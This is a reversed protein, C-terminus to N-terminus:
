SCQSLRVPDKIRAELESSCRLVSQSLRVLDKIRAELEARAKSIADQQGIILISANDHDTQSPFVVKAGTKESLEKLNLGNRGILFRHFEPKVRVEATMRSEKQM